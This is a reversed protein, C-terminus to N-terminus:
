CLNLAAKIAEQLEEDSFPKRLAQTAGFHTAARLYDTNRTRGGGSTAIIPLSPLERRLELILELGEKEPMILDTLVLEAGLRKASEVAAVGNELVFVEHGLERLKYQLMESFDADDEVILIKAM